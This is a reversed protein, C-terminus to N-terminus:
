GELSPAGHEPTPSEDLPGPSVSGQEIRAVKRGTDTTDYGGLERVVAKYSDSRVAELLLKVDPLEWHAALIALDYRERGVPIFDLEMSRAASLIGLGTDASGSAIAAAVATHTEVQRDYGRIGEPAVGLQKLRVDLLVRTGAGRQRNVMTVDPRALDELGAIGKPNGRAVMLGQQRHVLTVLVVEEGPLIRRVFPLNYEGSEEDLLHCGAVEAEGRELAILGALSGVNSSSVPLEPRNQHLQSILLDLALDHSGAIRLAPESPVPREASPADLGASRLERWRAWQLALAGEIQELSYGLSLAEVVARGLLERLRDERFGGILLHARSAVFSGRGPATSLVGDRELEAYAKAATNVNIGLQQALARVPPLRDGPALRGAAIQHRVQDVIQQHLPDRSSPDLRLDVELEL